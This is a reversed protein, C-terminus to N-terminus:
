FLTFTKTMEKGHADMAAKLLCKHEQDGAAKTMHWRLQMKPDLQGKKRRELFVQVLIDGKEHAAENL